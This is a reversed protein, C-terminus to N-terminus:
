AGAPGEEVTVGPSKRDDESTESPDEAVAAGAAEDNEAVEDVVADEDAAEVADAGDEEDGAAEVVDEAPEDEDVEAEVAETGPEDAPEEEVADGSAEAESDEGAEEGEEDGEAGAKFLAEAETEPLLEEDAVEAEAAVAHALAIADARAAALATMALGFVKEATNEPLGPVDKLGDLGLAEINGASVIGAAALLDVLQQTAGDFQATSVDVESIGPVEDYQSQPHVQIKWGTLKVALRVNVGNKGIAKALDEDEVILTVTETDHDVTATIVKIPSLSRSVFVAPDVAWPVIDIREGGLEKVISQVRSGKIGVCAGVADIRPDNSTVAIKSRHGPERAVAKVEVVREAIEPVEAEFLRLLFDSHTRSLVVQPGRAEKDVKIVLARVMERQRFRDRHMVERAPIIAEATDLKLVINGRDVQQVVGRVVQGVRDSFDAYVREREAERVGQILVQKAAQIANRGFEAIDLPIVVDDGVSADAKYPRAEAATMELGRDSVRGVVTKTMYMEISGAAEDFDVVIHANAGHKRKAASLLSTELREVLVRLEVGKERAIQSLAEVIDYNM